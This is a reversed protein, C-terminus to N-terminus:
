APSETLFDEWLEDGCGGGCGACVVQDLVERCFEGGCEECKVPTALDVKVGDFMRRWKEEVPALVRDLVDKGLIREISDLRRNAFASDRSWDSGTMAHAMSCYECDRVDDLYNRALVELDRRTPVFDEVLKFSPDRGGFIGQRIMWECGEAEPPFQDNM